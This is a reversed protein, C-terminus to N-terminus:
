IQIGVKILFVLFSYKAGPVNIFVENLELLFSLTFVKFIYIYIYIYM